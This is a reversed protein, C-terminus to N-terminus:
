KKRNVIFMPSASEGGNGVVRLTNRGDVLKASSVIVSATLSDNKIRLEVGRAVVEGNLEITVKDGASGTLSDLLISVRDAGTPLTLQKVPAPAGRIGTVPILLTAITPAVPHDPTDQNTRLKEIEAELQQIRQREADLDATLDSSADQQSSVQSSLEAERARSAALEDQMSGLRRNERLLFISGVALILILGISAFQFAPSNFAFLDAIRGFVGRREAITITGHKTNQEVIFEKLLRSNSIKDRRAPFQALSREFRELEAGKLQGANYSDVLENERDAIEFFLEEDGFYRDEFKERAEASMENLLYNDIQDNDM